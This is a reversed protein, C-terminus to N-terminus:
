DSSIVFGKTSKMTSLVTELILPQALANPHLADAQMFDPDLAVREIFFPHFAIANDIAIKKYIRQLFADYAPGYNTPLRIGLLVPQCAYDAKLCTDLMVQLNRQTSNLNQGRLADNAGLEVILIAPQYQNMLAPLRQKGGSTTEGSISANVVQYNPLAQQMLHVWGKEVPMGYAASLSDGMVLLVPQNAAELQLGQKLNEDQTVAVSLSPHIAILIIILLSAQHGQLRSFIWNFRGRLSLWIRRILRSNQLQSIYM